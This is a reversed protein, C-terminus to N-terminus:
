IFRHNPSLRIHLYMILCMRLAFKILVLSACCISDYNDNCYWQSSLIITVIIGFMTVIVPSQIEINHMWATCKLLMQGAPQVGVARLAWWLHLLRFVVVWLSYHPCHKIFLLSFPCFVIQLLILSPLLPCTIGPVGSPSVRAVVFYIFYVPM